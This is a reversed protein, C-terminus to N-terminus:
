GGFTDLVVHLAADIRRLPDPEAALAEEVRGVLLAAMRDLLALFLAQKNPFHFYLGGKSTDAEAAIEDMAADRYGRRTFVDLAAEIIREHRIAGRSASQAQEGTRAM